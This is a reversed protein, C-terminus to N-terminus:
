RTTRLTQMDAGKGAELAKGKHRHHEHGLRSVGERSEFTRVLVPEPVLEPFRDANSAEEFGVLHDPAPTQRRSFYRYLSVFEKLRSEQQKATLQCWEMWGGMHDIVTMILEDEFRVSAYYGHERTARILANFAAVARDEVSGRVLERLEAPSPFYRFSRLALNMTTALEEENLDAVAYYYAVVKMPSLGVGYAEALVSLRQVFRKVSEAEKSSKIGLQQLVSGILTM